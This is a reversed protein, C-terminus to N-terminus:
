GQKRCRGRTTSSRCVRGRSPRAPEGSGFIARTRHGPQVGAVCDIPLGARLGNTWFTLQAAWRRAMKPDVTSTSCCCSSGADRLESGIFMELQATDYVMRDLVEVNALGAELLGSAYADESIAGALCSSRLHKNAAIDPPLDEAVIDSVLMTGEPRLVRAIEGFVRHKEPSLNIVCNSNVWDVSAGDVPLEKIIGKRVEANTLGAAALEEEAKAIMEDTM